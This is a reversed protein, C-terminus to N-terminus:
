ENEATESETEAVEKPKVFLLVVIGVLSLFAIGLFLISRWNNQFWVSVTDIQVRSIEGRVSIVATNNYATLAESDSVACVVVYSGTKAPVFSLSSSNWALTEYDDDAWGITNKAENFADETGIEHWGALEAATRWDPNDATDPFSGTGVDGTNYWLMYETSVDNGKTTFTNVKTYTTGVYGPDQYSASSEVTPGANGMSFTFVPVKLVYPVTVGDGEYYGYVGGVSKLAWEEDIEMENGMPDTALVYYEYEGLSSLSFRKYSLKTFSDSGPTKYYVVATLDEGSFYDSKVYKKFYPEYAEVGKNKLDSNPIVYFYTSSGIPYYKGDSKLQKEVTEENYANYESGAFFGEIGDYAPAKAELTKNVSLTNSCCVFDSGYAFGWYAKITRGDETNNIFKVTAPASYVAVNDDTETGDAYSAVVGDFETYDKNYAIVIQKEIEEKVFGHYVSFDVNDYKYGWLQEYKAASADKKAFTFDDAFYAAEAVPSFAGEEIEYLNKGDTKVSNVTVKVSDTGEEFEATIELKGAATAGDTNVKVTVGEADTYDVVTEPLYFDYKSVVKANDETFNIVLKNDEIEVLESGTTFYDSATFSAPEEGDDAFATFGFAASCALLSIVFIAMLTTFRKSRMKVGKLVM